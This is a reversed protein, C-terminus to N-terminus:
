VEVAGGPVGARSRLRRALFKMLPLMEERNRPMSDDPKEWKVYEVDTFRAKVADVASRTVQSSRSGGCLVIPTKCKSSGSTSSSSAPLRGGISIVGGFEEKGLSAVHLAAMGGQGFGLFLINRSEFSCTERLTKLVIGSLM